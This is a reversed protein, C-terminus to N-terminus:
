RYSFQVFFAFRCFRLLSFVLSFWVMFTTFRAFIRSSLGVYYIRSGPPLYLSLLTRASFGFGSSGSKTSRLINFRPSGTRLWTLLTFRARACCGDMRYFFFFKVLVSGFWVLVMVTYPFFFHLVFLLLHAPLLLNAKESGSRWTPLAARKRRHRCLCFQYLRGAAHRRVPSSDLTQLLPVFRVSRVLAADAGRRSGDTGDAASKGLAPPYIFPLHQLTTHYLLYPFANCFPCPLLSYPLLLINLSPPKKKRM